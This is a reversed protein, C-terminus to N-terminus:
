IEEGFKPELRFFVIYGVVLFIFSTALMFAMDNTSVPLSYIISDRASIIMRAVPNLLVIKQLDAPFIDITYIIPTVFFGAQLIVQWIFQVDRFFVNLASLILSLGLSLVFLFILLIPAYLLNISIPVRYALMFLIFIIAEFFSMILATLCASIVFIDRPFYVKKIMDAKGIIAITGITTARTVFNWLIIGLLLFLQFYEVQVRMLNSFVVYLVTLMLLPELLSWFYGLVSNKYRLKFESWALQWILERYGYLSKLHDVIM